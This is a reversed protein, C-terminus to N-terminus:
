REEFVAETPVTVMGLIDEIIEYAANKKIRAANELTLRHDKIKPYNVKDKFGFGLKKTYEIEQEVCGTVFLLCFAFLACCIKM